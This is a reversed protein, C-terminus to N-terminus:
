PRARDRQELHEVREHLRDLDKRWETNVTQLRELMELQREAMEAALWERDDHTLGALPPPGNRRRRVILPVALILAALVLAVPLTLM